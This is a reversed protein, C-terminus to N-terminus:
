ERSIRVERTIGAASVDLRRSYLPQMQEGILPYNNLLNNSDVQVKAEQLPWPSHAIDGRWITRKTHSYFCYRETAWHAFSGPEAEFAPSVPVYSAQFAREGGRRQHEYHITTGTEVEFDARRYPLHFFTNAIQNAFLHNADLYFFYIGPRGAVTVYTRLNLEPFRLRSIRPLRTLEIETMMFPIIGLYAKGEFTDLKMGPPLQKQLFSSEVPWHLFLVHEWQMTLLNQNIKM